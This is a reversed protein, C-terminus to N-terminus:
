TEESVLQERPKARIFPSMQSPSYIDGVAETIRFSGTQLLRTSNTRCVNVLALDEGAHAGVAAAHVGLAREAALTRLTQGQVAGSARTHTLAFM